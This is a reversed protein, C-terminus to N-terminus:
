IDLRRVVINNEKRYFGIMSGNFVEQNWESLTMAQYDKNATFGVVVIDNIDGSRKFDDLGTVIGHEGNRLFRDEYTMKEKDNQLYVWDGIRLGRENEIFHVDIIPISKPKHYFPLTSTIKVPMDNFKIDFKAPGIQKLAQNYMVSLAARECDLRGSSTFISKVSKSAKEISKMGFGYTNFSSSQITLFEGRCPYRYNNNLTDFDRLISRAMQEPSIKKKPSTKFVQSFMDNKDRVAVVKRM